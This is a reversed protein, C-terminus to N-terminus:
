PRKRAIVHLMQGSERREPDNSAEIEDRVMDVLVAANTNAVSGTDNDHVVRVGSWQLIDFGAAFLLSCLEESRYARSRKGLANEFLVGRYTLNRSADDVLRERGAVIMGEYGKTLISLLGGEKTLLRLGLVHMEPDNQYQLVGHSVTLDYRTDPDFATRENGEFIQVRDAIESPLGARDMNAARLMESSTDFLDVSVGHGALWFADGGSGGGVDIATRVNRDIFPLLNHRTVQERIYGRTTALYDEYAKEAGAFSSTQQESM